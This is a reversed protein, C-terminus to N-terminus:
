GVRVHTRVGVRDFIRANVDREGPCDAPRVGENVESSTNGIESSLQVLHSCVSHCRSHLGSQVAKRVAFHVIEPGESSYHWLSHLMEHQVASCKGYVIANCSRLA